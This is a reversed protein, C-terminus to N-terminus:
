RCVWSVDTWVQKGVTDGSAAVACGFRYTKGGTVSWTFTASASSYKSPVPVDMGWGGDAANTAAAVDHRATRIFMWGTSIM